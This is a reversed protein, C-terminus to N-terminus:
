TAMDGICHQSYLIVTHTLCILCGISAIMVFAFIIAMQENLLNAMIAASVVQKSPMHKACPLNFVFDSLPIQEPYPCQAAALGHSTPMSM